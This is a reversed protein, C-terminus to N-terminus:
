IHSSIDKRSMEWEARIKEEEAYFDKLSEMKSKFENLHLSLPELSGGLDSPLLEKPVKKFFDEDKAKYLYLVELLSPKLFPRVLFYLKESVLSANIVHIGKINMPLAEQIYQVFRRVSPLETIPCHAFSLGKANLVLVYGKQLGDKRLTTDVGMHIFKFTDALNFKSSDKDVLGSYLLKYGERTPKPLSTLGVCEWVKQINPNLPDRGRFIEPSKMKLEYAAKISVRALGPNYNCSHLYEVIQDDSISPPVAPELKLGAKLLDVKDQHKEFHARHALHIRKLKDSFSRRVNECVKTSIM